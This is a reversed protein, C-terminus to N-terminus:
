FDDRSVGRQFYPDLAEEGWYDADADAKADAAAQVAQSWLKTAIKTLNREVASVVAEQEQALALSIDKDPSEDIINQMFAMGLQMGVTPMDAQPNLSASGELEEQIEVIHKKIWTQMYDDLRQQIDGSNAPPVGETQELMMKKVVATIFSKLQTNNKM